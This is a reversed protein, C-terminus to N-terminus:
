DAKEVCKENLRFQPRNLSILVKPTCKRSMHLFTDDILIIENQVISKIKYLSVICNQSCKIFGHSSLFKLEQSLSGYKKYTGNQTYVTMHHGHIKIYYIDCIRLKTVSTKTKCLYTQQMDTYIDLAEELGATGYQSLFSSIKNQLNSNTLIDQLTIM